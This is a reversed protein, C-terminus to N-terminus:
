HGNSVLEQVPEFFSISKDANPGMTLATIRRYQEADAEMDTRSGDRSWLWFPIHQEDMGGILHVEALSQLLM